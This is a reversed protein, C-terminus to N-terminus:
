PVDISNRQTLAATVNDGALFDRHEPLTVPFDKRRLVKTRMPLPWQGFAQNSISPDDARQMGM